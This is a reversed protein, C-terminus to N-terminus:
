LIVAIPCGSLIWMLFDQKSLHFVRVFDPFFVGLGYKDFIQDKDAFFRNLTFHFKFYVFVLLRPARRAGVELSRGKPGAQYRGERGEPAWATHGMCWHLSPITCQLFQKKKLNKRM